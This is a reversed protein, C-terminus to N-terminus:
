RFAYPCSANCSVLGDGSPLQMLIAVWTFFRILRDFALTAQIM